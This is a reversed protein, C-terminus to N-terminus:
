CNTKASPLYRKIDSISLNGYHLVSSIALADAQNIYPNDLHELCGMGGCVIVPVPVAKNVKEILSHDFGQKTGEKDISTLLIEGAGLDVARKCWDLVDYGSRERGYDTYAEWKDESMKKAEISVTISQSGFIKSLEAILEPKKTAETNIAIKDAGSRLINYADHPTRIGGGVTIPIFINKVSEKIFDLLTNRQYLSAVADMYILEDAGQTYYKNAYELPNGIVRLGELHIGKILNKGKIDLRPIIRVKNM